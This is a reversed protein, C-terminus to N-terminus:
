QPKKFLLTMRDSEGIAVYKDRDQDGLALRPPLTWVGRPHDATDKANANVESAVVLEFGANTALNIVYDQTVYGSSKQDDLSTGPKARHEVVGLMGGPKLAAFFQNFAAQEANGGMWNHVNRFTLVRDATGAPAITQEGAPDFATMEVNAYMAKNSALKESFKTRLRQYYSPKEVDPFHAAYLKGNDGVATALIETYWGGGPWIEVVTQGAEVQFVKLTEAPNRYTDRAVYAETRASNAVADDITDANVGQWAFAVSTALALSILRM